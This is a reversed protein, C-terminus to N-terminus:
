NRLDASRPVSLGSISTRCGAAAPGRCRANARRCGCGGGLNRCIAGRAQGKPLARREASKVEQVYVVRTVNSNRHELQWSVEEAGDGAAIATSAATHRFSHFNPVSGRSVPGGYHLVHFTPRGKIDRAGRMARRLERLVNRQELARGSRTAFVFDGEGAYRSSLRHAVLVAAVQRPWSSRGDHNRRRSPCAGRHRSLRVKSSGGSRATSQAGADSRSGQIPRAFM